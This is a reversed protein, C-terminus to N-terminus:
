NKAWVAYQQAVHAAEADGAHFLFRYRFTATKGSEIVFDGAGAPKKEFDHIGFPNAAVLGYERAHWWTPHRPNSPHDFVAVGVLRDDIKASYDVWTARKGWIAKGTDGASNVASAGRDIRLKPNTRIGATGEKTDGFKVEGHTARLTVAYDVARSGGPLLVFRVEQSDTCVVAGDPKRWEDALAVGVSYIAGRDTAHTKADTVQAKTTVITGADKGLHWFSTGNVDGHTFWVSQQHPHDSAEGEVDKKMPFHRVMSVGGPGIVPYVIPKAFGEYCLSAFPQGDITVVVARGGDTAVDRAELPGAKASSRTENATQDESVASEGFLAVALSLAAFLLSKKALM